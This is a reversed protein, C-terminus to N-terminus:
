AKEERKEVPAKDIDDDTVESNDQAVEIDLKAEQSPEKSDSDSDSRLPPHVVPSPPASLAASSPPAYDNLDLSSLRNQESDDEVERNTLRLKMRSDGLQIHSLALNDDRQMRNTILSKLIVKQLSVDYFAKMADDSSSSNPPSRFLTPAFIRALNDADMNNEFSEAAIEALFRPPPPFCVCVCVLTLLSLPLSSSPLSPFLSVPTILIRLTILFKDHPFFSDTQL